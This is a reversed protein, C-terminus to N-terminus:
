HKLKFDPKANIKWTDPKMDSEFIIVADPTGMNHMWIQASGFSGDDEKSSLFSRGTKQTLNVLKLLYFKIREEDTLKEIKVSVKWKFLKFLLRQIWNM